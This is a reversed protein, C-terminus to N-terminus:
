AQEEARSQEGAKEIQARMADLERRRLETNIRAVDRRHKPVSSTDDLQNTYNQLRAQFLESTSQRALEKLEDVSKEALEKTKM